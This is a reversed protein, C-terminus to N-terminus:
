SRMTLPAPWRVAKRTKFKQVNPLVMTGLGVWDLHEQYLEGSFVAATPIFVGVGTWVASASVSTDYAVVLASSGSWSASANAIRTGAITKTGTGNWSVSVSANLVAAYSSTGTAAWSASATFNNSHQATLTGTGVWSITATQVGPEVDLISLSEYEFFSM